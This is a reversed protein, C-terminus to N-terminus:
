VTLMDSCSASMSDQKKAHGMSWSHELIDDPQAKAISREPHVRTVIKKVGILICLM